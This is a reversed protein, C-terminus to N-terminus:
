NGGVSISVYAKSFGAEELLYASTLKASDLKRWCIHQRLSQQIWSGGISISVYAKSFGAEELLYASTM